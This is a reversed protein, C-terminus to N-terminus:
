NLKVHNIELNNNKDKAFDNRPIPQEGKQHGEFWTEHQDYMRIYIHINNRKNTNSWDNCATLNWLSEFRLESGPFPDKGWM